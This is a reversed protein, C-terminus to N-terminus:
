PPRGVRACAPRVLLSVYERSQSFTAERALRESVGKGLYPPQLRLTFCFPQIRAQPSAHVFRANSELLRMRRM